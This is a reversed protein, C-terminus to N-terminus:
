LISFQLPFVTKNESCHSIQASRSIELERIKGLTCLFAMSIAKCSAQKPKSALRGGEMPLYYIRFKFFFFFDWQM